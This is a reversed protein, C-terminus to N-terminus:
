LATIVDPLDRLPGASGPTRTGPGADCVVTTTAGGREVASRRPCGACWEVDIDGRRPCEVRGHADAVLRVSTMARM